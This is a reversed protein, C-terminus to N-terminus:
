QCQNKNFIRGRSESMWYLNRVLVLRLSRRFCIFFIIITSMAGKRFIIHADLLEFETLELGDSLWCCCCGKLLKDCLGFLDLELRAEMGSWISCFLVLLSFVFLEWHRKLGYSIRKWRWITSFSLNSHISKPRRFPSASGEDGLGVACVFIRRCNLDLAWCFLCLIALMLKEM